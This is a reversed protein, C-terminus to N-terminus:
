GKDRAQRSRDSQNLGKEFADRYKDLEAKNRQLLATYRENTVDLYNQVYRARRQLLDDATREPRTTGCGPLLMAFLLVLGAGSRVMDRAAVDARTM